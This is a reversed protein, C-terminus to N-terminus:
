SPLSVSKKEFDYGKALFINYKGEFNYVIFFCKVRIEQRKASRNSKPEHAEDLDLAM